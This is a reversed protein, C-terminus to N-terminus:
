LAKFSPDGNREVLDSWFPIHKTPQSWPRHTYGLFEREFYDELDAGYYIVDAQYVSFVPNGQERPEEPLYRHSILPILKTARSVVSRLIEERANADIPRTGWEPWWLHNQEVDFLLGEFPWALAERIDTENTWDHGNAPRKERLLAILDPPFELGFRSQARDLEAQTYGKLWQVSIM